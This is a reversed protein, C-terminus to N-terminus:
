AESSDVMIDELVAMAAIDEMDLDMAETGELVTDEPFTVQNLKLRLLGREMDMTDM